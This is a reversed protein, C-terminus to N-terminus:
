VLDGKVHDSKKAAAALRSSRKQKKKQPENTLDEIDEVNDTKNITSKSPDACAYATGQEQKIAVPNTPEPLEIDCAYEEWDEKQELEQTLDIADQKDEDPLNFNDSVATWAKKALPLPPSRPPTAYPNNAKPKAAPPATLPQQAEDGAVKTPTVPVGFQTEASSIIQLWADENEILKLFNAHKKQLVDIEKDLVKRQALKKTIENRTATSLKLYNKKKNSIAQKKARIINPTIM